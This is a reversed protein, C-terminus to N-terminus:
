LKERNNLSHGSSFLLTSVTPYVHSVAQLHLFHARNHYTRPDGLSIWICGDAHPKYRWGDAGCEGPLARDSASNGTGFVAVRSNYM